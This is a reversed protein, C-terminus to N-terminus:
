VKYLFGDGLYITFAYLDEKPSSHFFYNCRKYLLIFYGYFFCKVLEGVHKKKGKSKKQIIIGYLQWFEMLIIFMKDEMMVTVLMVKVMALSLGDYIILKKKREFIICFIFLYLSPFYTKLSFGIVIIHNYTMNTVHCKQLTFEKIKTLLVHTVIISTNFPNM